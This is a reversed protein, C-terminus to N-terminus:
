IKLKVLGEYDKPTTAPISFKNQGIQPINNELAKENVVIVPIQAVM